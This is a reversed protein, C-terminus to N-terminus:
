INSETAAQVNGSFHISDCSKLYFMTDHMFFFYQVMNQNLAAKTVRVLAHILLLLTKIEEHASYQKETASQFNGSFNICM